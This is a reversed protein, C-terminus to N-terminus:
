ANWASWASAVMDHLSKDAYWGLENNILTTDAVLEAPDGPRREVDQPNVDYGVVDSITQLVERVSSGSGRGVNFVASVDGNTNAECLDAAAVHSRALDVVHIYDRICTGDPTPYDSGFIKPRDGNTIARLALPILNAVSTDGLDDSGAGAVNFYRLCVNSLGIDAGPDLLRSRAAARVIWEGILKTEGYPSTPVTPAAEPVKGSGPEGYVAASSSYVINSVGFTDMAKLMALVGDVNERYYFLPREVSEGVAKKAALHIVGDVHHEGFVASWDTEALSSVILPVGDPVRSAIGTSLDDVVVVDRGSALLERVVHSGIYGAGGTLLWCSM